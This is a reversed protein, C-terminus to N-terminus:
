VNHIDEHHLGNEVFKGVIKYIDNITLTAIHELNDNNRGDYFEFGM